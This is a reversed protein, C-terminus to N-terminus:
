VGPNHWVMRGRRVEIRDGKKQRLMERLERRGVSDDHEATAITEKGKKLVYTKSIYQGNMAQHPRARRNARKQRRMSPPMPHSTEWQTNKGMDIEM